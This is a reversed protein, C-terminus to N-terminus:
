SFFLPPYLITKFLLVGSSALVGNMSRLHLEHKRMAKTAMLHKKGKRKKWGGREGLGVCSEKHSDRKRRRIKIVHHSKRKACSRWRWKGGWRPHFSFHLYDPQFQKDWWISLRAPELAIITSLITPLFLKLIACCIFLCLITTLRPSLTTTPTPRPFISSCHFGQDIFSAVEARENAENLLERANTTEIIFFDSGLPRFFLVLHTVRVLWQRLSFCM